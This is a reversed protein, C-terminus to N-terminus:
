DGSSPTPPSCDRFFRQGQDEAVDGAKRAGGGKGGGDAQPSAGHTYLVGRDFSEKLYLLEFWSITTQVSQLLTELGATWTIRPHIIKLLEYDSLRRIARVPDTEHFILNLEDYIRTGSLKEFINMRVALKILNETHKSLKYGFRESFRIARYARTLDEVFSLNHLVKIVREKLDRQGGFFDILQGFDRRNLKVALTNITFDRRYLDKKISSAEVTPLAAPSEYYETRATAVDLKFSDRIIKATGFRHHVTVRAGIKGALNRAFTM